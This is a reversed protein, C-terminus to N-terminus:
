AIFDQNTEIKMKTEISVRWRSVKFVSMEVTLFTEVSQFLVDRCILFDWDWNTLQGNKYVRLPEWGSHRTVSTHQPNGELHAELDKKKKTHGMQSGKNKIKRKIYYSAFRKCGDLISCSEFGRGRPRSDEARVVLGPKKCRLIIIYFIIILKEGINWRHHATNTHWM